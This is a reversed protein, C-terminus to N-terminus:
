DEQIMMYGRGRATKIIDQDGLYKSLKQRVRSVHVDISRDYPMLPRQLVKETLTEKSVIEGSSRMLLELVSFEASTLGLSEGEFRADRQGRNVEIGHLQLTEANQQSSDATMQARRLVARLRASLERPNCPKGMYDDAGMELGIIRDIDDGRGTLMIIPTDSHSRLSQLVDLGSLKPMMIDLVLADVRELNLELAQEPDNIVQINFGEGVLFEELLETLEADDDVLVINPNENM